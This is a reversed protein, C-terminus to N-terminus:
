TLNESSSNLELPDDSGRRRLDKSRSRCRRSCRPSSTVSAVDRGSTIRMAPLKEKVAAVEGAIAGVYDVHSQTYVRRPLAFRVLQKRAPAAGFMLEGIECTRVGGALYMACALSQGPLDDPRLHPLAAGADVYVAHAAAPTIM